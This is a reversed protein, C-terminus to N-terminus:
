MDWDTSGTTRLEEESSLAAPWALAESNIELLDATEM